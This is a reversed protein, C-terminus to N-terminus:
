RLRPELVAISNGRTSVYLHRGDPSSAVHTPGRLARTDTCRGPFPFKPDPLPGLCAWEGLLPLLEGRNGVHFVLLGDSGIVYAARGGRSVVPAALLLSDTPRCHETNDVSLCGIEGRVPRVAGTRRSRRYMRVREPSGAYNELAYLVRGGPGLSLDVADPRNGPAPRQCPGVRGDPVGVCGGRGRVRRLLGSRGDRRFVALSAANTPEDQDSGVYLHRGDASMVLSVEFFGGFASTRRCVRTVMPEAETGALCAAKSRPQRLAGTERDRRLLRITPTPGRLYLHRGSPDFVLEGVRISRSRTVGRLGQCGAAPGVCAQRGRLQALAGTRADRRFATIVDNLGVAYLHRGDPSLELERPRGLSPVSACGNRAPDRSTICGARGRLQTLGGTAADRALAVLARGKRAAAYVFRGDPSVAVDAVGALGRARGCGRQGFRSVCGAPGAPQELAGRPRIGDLAFEYTGNAALYLRGDAIAPRVGAAALGSPVSWLPGCGEPRCIAPFAWLRGSGTPGAGSAYVVGNALSPSGVFYSPEIPSMPPFPRAVWLPECQAGGTGCDLAYARLEPGLAFFVTGQGIVPNTAREGGTGSGQWPVDAHWRPECEDNCDAPFAVIRSLGGGEPLTVYRHIVV